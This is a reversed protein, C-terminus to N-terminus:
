LRQDDVSARHSLPQALPPLDFHDGPGSGGLMFQRKGGPTQGLQDIEQHGATFSVLWSSCALMIRRLM